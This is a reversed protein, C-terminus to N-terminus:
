NTAPAGLAETVLQSGSADAAAALRERETAERRALVRMAQSRHAEPTHALVVLLHELTDPSDMCHDLLLDLLTGGDSLMAGAASRQTAEPARALISLATEATVPDRVEAILAEAVDPRQLMALGAIQDREADGVYQVLDLLTAWEGAVQAAELAAEAVEEGQRLAATAVIRKHERRMQRALPLAVAMLGQEFAVQVLEGLLAEDRLSPLNVIKRMHRPHMHALARLIPGWLNQRRAVMVLADLVTEDQSGMLDALRAKLEDTVHDVVFLAEPLLEAQAGSRMIRAIRANDINHVIRALQERNELYFATRLLTADDDIAGVVARLAQPSLADAFRGMTVFDAREVLLLAADRVLETRLHPVIVRVSEPDIIPAIDAVFSPTIHRAIGRVRYPDMRAVVRAALLPGLGEMAIRAVTRAPLFRALRALRRFREHRNDFVQREITRRLRRLEESGTAGLATLEAEPSDLLRALKGVEARTELPLPEPATM